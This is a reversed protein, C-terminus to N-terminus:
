GALLGYGSLGYVTWLIRLALKKLNFLCRKVISITNDNLYNYYVVPVDIFMFEDPHDRYIEEILYGDETKCNDRFLYGQILSKHIVLQTTDVFLRKMNGLKAVRLIKGMRDKQTFMFAKASYQFMQMWIAFDRCVLNDDDLFWLWGDVARVAKNRLYGTSFYSLDNDVEDPDTDIVHIFDGEVLLEDKVYRPDPLLYWHYDIWGEFALVISERMVPLNAPRSVITIINLRVL